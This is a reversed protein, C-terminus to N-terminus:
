GFIWLLVSCVIGTVMIKVVNELAITSSVWACTGMIAVVAISKAINNM